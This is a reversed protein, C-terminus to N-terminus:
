SAPAESADDVSMWREEDLLACPSFDVLDILDGVTATAEIPHRLTAERRVVYRNRRGVRCRTIVGARELDGVIKQVARETIGVQIAVDRLLVESDRTLCIVVHAHNTLFM